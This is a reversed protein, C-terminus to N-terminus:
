RPTINKERMQKYIISYDPLFLYNPSSTIQKKNPKKKKKQNQKREELSKSTWRFNLKFKDREQLASIGLTAWVAVMESSTKYVVQLKRWLYGICQWIALFLCCSGTANQQNAASHGTKLGMRGSSNKTHISQHHATLQGWLGLAPKANSLGAIATTCWISCGPAASHLKRRAPNPELDWSWEPLM